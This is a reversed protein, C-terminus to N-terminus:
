GHVQRRQVKATILQRILHRICHLGPTNVAVLQRYFDRFAHHHFVIGFDKNLYHPFSSINITEGSTMSSASSTLEFVGSKIEPMDEVSVFGSDNLLDSTKSPIKGLVLHGLLPEIDDYSLALLFTKLTSKNTVDFLYCDGSYTGYTNSTFYLAGRSITEVNVLGTDSDIQVRGTATDRPGIFVVGSLHAPDVFCVYEGNATLEDSILTATSGAAASPCVLNEIHADATFTIGVENELATVRSNMTSTRGDIYAGLNDSYGVNVATGSNLIYPHTYVANGSLPTSASAYLIFM